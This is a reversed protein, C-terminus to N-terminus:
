WATAARASAFIDAIAALERARDTVERLDGGIRLRGSMFATQASLDGRAIEAATARDQTVTIDVDDSRGPEVAVRGDRIRVVYTTEVGRDDLVVQQVALRLTGSVEAARAARDLDAIWADSLFEAV